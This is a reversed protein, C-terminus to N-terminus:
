RSQADLRGAPTGALAILRVQDDVESGPAAGLLVLAQGADPTALVECDVELLGVAPHLIRKRLRHRESVEHRAWLGAFESSADTLGSVLRDVDADGRRRSWAVRLDAVRVRSHHAHDEAPYRQRSAPDTFWYWTTSATVDFAAGPPQVALDLLQVALENAALVVGLDSVVFAALGSVSDLVRLMTPSVTRVPTLREPPAHGALRYLHDREDDGLQLARAIAAVMQVSPQPGRRQELRVYYDVSMGVRQAVEERRLGTARRRLGRPLGLAEPQIAQRRRRLFDALAESDMFGNHDWVWRALSPSAIGSNM